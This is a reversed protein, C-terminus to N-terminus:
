AEVLEPQKIHLPPPVLWGKEKSLRLAKLGLATMSLHFRAFLAGVDERISKGMVQSCAALSAAMDAGLLATIEQDTFRAGIPIDELKAAPREPLYPAPAIGNQVLIQDCEKAEVQVQDIIDGLLKILDKDGAHYEYARYVSICGKAKVSAAWLDFIEGCHLPEEKTNGSLVGM